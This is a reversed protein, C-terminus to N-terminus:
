PEGGIQHRKALSFLYERSHTSKNQNKLDFEAVTIDSARDMASCERAQAAVPQLSCSIPDDIL